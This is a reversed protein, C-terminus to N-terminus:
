QWNEATGMGEMGETGGTSADCISVAKAVSRGCGCGHGTAGSGSDDDGDVVVVGGVVVAIVAVKVRGSDEVPRSNRGGADVVASFNIAFSTWCNSTLAARDAKGASGM